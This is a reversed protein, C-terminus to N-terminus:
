FVLLLFLYGRISIILANKSRDFVTFYCPQFVDLSGLEIALWDDHGIHPLHTRLSRKDNPIKSKGFFMLGKWGYAAM